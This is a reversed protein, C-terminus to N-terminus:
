TLYPLGEMIEAHAICMKIAKGVPTHEHKRIQTSLFKPQKREGKSPASKIIKCIHTVVMVPSFSSPIDGEGLEYIRM